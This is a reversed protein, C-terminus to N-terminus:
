MKSSSHKALVPVPIMMFLRSLKGEINGVVALYSRLAGRLYRKMEDRKTTSPNYCRCSHEKRFM